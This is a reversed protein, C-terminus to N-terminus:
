KPPPATYEPVCAICNTTGVNSGFRVADPSGCTCNGGYEKPLNEAGIEAILREKYDKGLFVVKARTDPDVFHQMLSWGTTVLLSCNIMYIKHLTNPYHQREIASMASFLKVGTM